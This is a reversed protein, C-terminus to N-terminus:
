PLFPPYDLHFLCFSVTLFSARAPTRVATATTPLKILKGISPLM